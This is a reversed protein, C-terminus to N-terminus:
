RKKNKNKSALKRAARVAVGDGKSGRKIMQDNTASSGWGRSTAVDKNNAAASSTYNQMTLKHTAERDAQKGKGTVVKVPLPRSSPRKM